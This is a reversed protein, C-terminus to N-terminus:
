MTKGRLYLLKYLIYGKSPPGLNMKHMKLEVSLLYSEPRMESTSIACLPLPHHGERVSKTLLSLVDFGRQHWLRQGDQVGEERPQLPKAPTSTPRM